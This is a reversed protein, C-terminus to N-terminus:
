WFINLSAKLTQKGNPHVICGFPQFATLMIKLYFLAVLSLYSNIFSTFLKKFDHATSKEKIGWVIKNHISIFFNQIFIKFNVPLNKIKQKLSKKKKKKKKEKDDDDDEDDLFIPEKYRLKLKKAIASGIRMAFLSRIVAVFYLFVYLVAFLFPLSIYFFYVYFYTIFPFLCEPAL